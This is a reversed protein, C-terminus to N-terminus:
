IFMSYYVLFGVLLGGLVLTSVRHKTILFGALVGCLIGSVVGGTFNGSDDLRGVAQFLAGVAAYLVLRFCRCLCRLM